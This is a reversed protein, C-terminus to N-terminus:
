GLATLEMKGWVAIKKGCQAFVGEIGLGEWARAAEVVRGVDRDERVLNALATAAADALAGAHEVGSARVTVLDGRGLSLSHGVTGSSSCLSLPFDGAPIRLGVCAGSEPEALLAVTREKTSCLYLDGGNEVLLDPSQGAFREAVAQAVAGAVAAMPGVGCERGARAMRRVIAPASGPVGLPVLSRLFEPHLVAYAMVAGRVEHLFDAVQRSLDQQSIDQGSIDQRATIWLDSEGVAAQFSVEGERRSVAERYFRDHGRHPGAM